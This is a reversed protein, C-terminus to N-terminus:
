VHARGIERVQGPRAQALKGDAPSNHGLPLLAHVKGDVEQAQVPGPLHVQLKGDAPHPGVKGDEALRLGLRPLPAPVKGDARDKHNGDVVAM